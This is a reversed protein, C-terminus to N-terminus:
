ALPDTERGGAPPVQQQAAGHQRSAPRRTQNHFLDGGRGRREMLSVEPINLSKATIPSARLEHTSHLVLRGM